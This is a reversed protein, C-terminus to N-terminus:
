KEGSYDNIKNCLCAMGYSIGFGIVAGSLVDTLFHNGSLLRLVMTTLCVLLSVTLVPKKLKSEADRFTFWAVLFGLVLFVNSTHGSPWSRFFDGEAIGEASPNAFYMYPRIRGVITKLVRYIGNAYFGCVMFTYVDIVANNFAKKKDDSTFFAFAIVGCCILGMLGVFADGTKDLSKNYPQALKADVPNVNELNYATGDWEIAKRYKKALSATCMLAAGFVFVAIYKFLTKKNM